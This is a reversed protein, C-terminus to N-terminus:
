VRRRLRGTERPDPRFTLDAAGSPIPTAGKIAKCYDLTMRYFRAYAYLVQSQAVSKLDPFLGVLEEATRQARGSTADARAQERAIQTPSPRVAPPRYQRRPGSGPKSAAAGTLLLHRVELSVRHRRMM